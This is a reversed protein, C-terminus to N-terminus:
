TIKALHDILPVGVVAKIARDTKYIWEEAGGDMATENERSEEEFRILLEGLATRVTHLDGFEIDAKFTKRTFYSPRRPCSALAAAIRTLAEVNPSVRGEFPFLWDDVIDRLRGIYYDPGSLKFPPLKDV